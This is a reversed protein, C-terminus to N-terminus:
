DEDDRGEENVNLGHVSSLWRNVKYECKTKEINSGIVDEELEKTSQLVEFCKKNMSLASELERALENMAISKENNIMKIFTSIEKQALM